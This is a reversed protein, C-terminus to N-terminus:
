DITFINSKKNEVYKSIENFESELSIKMQHKQTVNTDYSENYNDIEFIEDGVINSLESAWYNPKWETNEFRMTEVLRRKRKQM